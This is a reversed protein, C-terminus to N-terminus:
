ACHAPSLDWVKITKDWSASALLKNDPSFALMIVNETNGKLLHLQKRTALHEVKINWNEYFATAALKGDPSFSMTSVPM